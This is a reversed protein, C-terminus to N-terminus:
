AVRERWRKTAIDSECAKCYHQLGDLSRPSNWVSWFVTDQPWYESCGTCLKELGMEPDLRAKGTALRKALLGPKMLPTYEGHM